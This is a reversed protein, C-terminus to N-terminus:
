SLLSRHFVTAQTGYSLVLFRKGRPLVEYNRASVNAVGSFLEQPPGAKFVGPFTGTLDVALLVPRGGVGGASAQYFLEKGDRRWAPERGGFGSIKWKERIGNTERERLSASAAVSRVYIEERGSQISTYALLSGDPSLRAEQPRTNWDGHLEFPAKGEELSTM